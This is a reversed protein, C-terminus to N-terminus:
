RGTPEIFIQPSPARKQINEFLIAVNPSDTSTYLYTFFRKSGLLANFREMTAYTPYFLHLNTSQTNLLMKGLSGILPGLNEARMEPKIFLYSLANLAGFQIALNDSELGYEVYALMFKQLNNTQTIFLQLFRISYRQVDTSDHGLQYSM